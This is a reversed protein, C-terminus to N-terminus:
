EGSITLNGIMDRLQPRIKELFKKLSSRKYKESKYEVYKGELIERIKRPKKDRPKNNEINSEFIRM